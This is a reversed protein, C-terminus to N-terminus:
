LEATECLPQENSSKIRGVEILAKGNEGVICDGGSLMVYKKNFYSTFKLDGEGLNEVLVRDTGLFKVKAKGGKGNLWVPSLSSSYGDFARCEGARICRQVCLKEKQKIAVLVGDEEYQVKFAVKNKEDPSSKELENDMVFRARNLPIPTRDLLSIEWLPNETEKANLCFTIENSFFDELQEVFLPDEASITEIIKEDSPSLYAGVVESNQFWPNKALSEYPSEWNDNSKGGTLVVILPKEYVVGDLFMQGNQMRKNLADFALGLNSEGNYKSHNWVIGIDNVYRLEEITWVPVSSYELIYVCPECKANSLCEISRKISHKAQLWKERDNFVVADLVFIVPVVRRDGGRIIPM